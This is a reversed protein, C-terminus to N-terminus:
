RLKQIRSRMFNSNPSGRGLDLDCSDSILLEMDGWKHTIDKLTNVFKMKSLIGVADAIHSICRIYFQATKVGSTDM